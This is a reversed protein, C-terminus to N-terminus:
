RIEDRWKTRQEVPKGQWCCQAAWKDPRRMMNEALEMYKKVKLYFTQWGLQSGLGHHVSEQEFSRGWLHAFSTRGTTNRVKMEGVFTLYQM